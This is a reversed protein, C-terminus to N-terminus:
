CRSNRLESTPQLVPAVSEREILPINRLASSRIRRPPNCRTDPWHCNADAPDGCDYRSIAFTHADERAVIVGRGGPSPTM